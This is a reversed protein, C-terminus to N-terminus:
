SSLAQGAGKENPVAAVKSSHDAPAVAFFATADRHVAAVADKLIDGLSEDGIAARPKNTASLKKFEQLPISKGEIFKELTLEPDKAIEAKLQLYQERTLEAYKGENAKEFDRGDKWTSIMIQKFADADPAFGLKLEDPKGKDMQQMAFVKGEYADGAQIREYNDKSIYVDLYDGDGVKLGKIAGYYGKIPESYMGNGVVRREGDRTEIYLQEDGNAVTDGHATLGVKNEKAWTDARIVSGNKAGAQLWASLEKPELAYEKGDDGRTIVQPHIKDPAENNKELQLLAAGLKKAQDTTLLQTDEPIAKLNGGTSYAMLIEEASKGSFEKQINELSPKVEDFSIVPTAKGAAEKRKSWNKEEVQVIAQIVDDVVLAEQFRFLPNAM